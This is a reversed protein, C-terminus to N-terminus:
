LDFAPVRELLQLVSEVIDGNLTDMFGKDHLVGSLTVSTEILRGIEDDPDGSFGNKDLSDKIEDLLNLRDGIRDIQRIPDHEKFEKESHRTIDECLEEFNSNEVFDLNELIEIAFERHQGLMLSEAFEKLNLPKM